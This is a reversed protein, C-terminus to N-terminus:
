DQSHVTDQLQVAYRSVLLERHSIRSSSPRSRLSPPIEIFRRSKSATNRSTPTDRPIAISRTGAKAGWAAAYSPVALADIDQVSLVAVIVLATRTLIVQFFTFSPPATASASTCAYSFLGAM